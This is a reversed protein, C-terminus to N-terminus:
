YLVFYKVTYKDILYSSILIITILSLILIPYYIEKKTEKRLSNIFIYIVYCELAFFGFGLYGALPMEFIKPSNLYPLSYIWKSGAKYNFLEWLFGCIMGATFLTYIKSPNAEEMDKIFSNEGKIYNIPDFVFILSVWILPFFISPLALSLIFLIVGISILIKLLKNSPKKIRKTKVDSFIGIGEILYSTEFIAPLVTAYSIIYGLYRQTKDLPIMIYQWNKLFVNCIEFLFWVGCSVALMHFFEDPHSILLSQRRVLYTIGDVFIIYSYWAFIYYFRYFPPVQLLCMITSVTFVFLGAAILFPSIKEDM